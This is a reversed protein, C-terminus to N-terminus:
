RVSVRRHQNPPRRADLAADVEDNAHTIASWMWRSDEVPQRLQAVHQTCGSENRADSTPPRERQALINRYLVISGPRFGHRAGNPAVLGDLSRKSDGRSPRPSSSGPSPGSRALFSSRPTAYRSLGERVMVDHGEM